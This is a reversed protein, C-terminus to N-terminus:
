YNKRIARLAKRFDGKMLSFVLTFSFNAVFLSTSLFVYIPTGVQLARIVTLVPLTMSASAGSAYMAAMRWRGTKRDIKIGALTNERCSIKLDQNDKKLVENLRAYYVVAAALSLSSGMGTLTLLIKRHEFL